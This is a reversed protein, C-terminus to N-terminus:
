PWAHASTREASAASSVTLDTTRKELSPTLTNPETDFFNTTGGYEHHHAHTKYPLVHFNVMHYTSYVLSWYLVIYINLPPPGGVMLGVLLSLLAIFAGGVIFFNVFWEITEDLLGGASDSHHRLHMNFPPISAHALRHAGYSWLQLIILTIVGGLWTGGLYPFFMTALLSLIAWPINIMCFDVLNGIAGKTQKYIGREISM